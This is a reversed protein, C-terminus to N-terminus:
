QHKLSLVQFWASQEDPHQDMRKHYKEKDIYSKHGMACLEVDNQVMWLYLALIEHNEYGPYGFLEDFVMHTGPVIRDSLLQFTITTSLFLDGDHHILAAPMRPHREKFQGITNQFWGEYLEVQEPLLSRVTSYLDENEGFRGAEFGGRWKEPLGQFSDFGAMVGKFLSGKEDKRTTVAAANTTQPILLRDSAYKLSTGKYVGFEAWFGHTLFHTKKVVEDFRDAIEEIPRQFPEHVSNNVRNFVNHIFDDFSESPHVVLKRNSPCSKKLDSIKQDDLLNDLSLWSIGNQNNNKQRGSVQRLLSPKRDEVLSSSASSASLLQNDAVLLSAKLLLLMAFVVITLSRLLLLLSSSVNKSNSTRHRNQLSNITKRFM